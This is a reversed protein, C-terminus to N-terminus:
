MLLLFTYLIVNGFHQPYIGNLGIWPSSLGEAVVESFDPIM